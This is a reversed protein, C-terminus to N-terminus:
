FRLWCKVDFNTLKKAKVKTPRPKSCFKKSMLNDADMRIISIIDITFLWYIVWKLQPTIEISDVKIICIKCFTENEWEFAVSNLHEIQGAAFTTYNYVGEKIM